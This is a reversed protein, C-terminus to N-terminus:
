KGTKDRILSVIGEYCSRSGAALKEATRVVPEVDLLLKEGALDFRLVSNEQLSVALAYKDDNCVIMRRTSMDAASISFILLAICFVIGLARRLLILHERSRQKRQESRKDM